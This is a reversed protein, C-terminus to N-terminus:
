ETASASRAEILVTNLRYYLAELFGDFQVLAHLPVASISVIQTRRGPDEMWRLLRTQEEVDLGEVHELVLTRTGGPPLAFQAGPRLIQLPSRLRSDRLARSTWSMDGQLLINTGREVAISWDDFRGDLTTRAKTMDEM